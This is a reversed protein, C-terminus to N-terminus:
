NCVTPFPFALFDLFRNERTTCLTCDLYSLNSNGYNLEVMDALGYPVRTQQRPAGLYIGLSTHPSQGAGVVTCQLGFEPLPCVTCYVTYMLCSNWDTTYLM